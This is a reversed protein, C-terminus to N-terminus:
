TASNIKKVGVLNFLDHIFNIKIRKDINASLQMSPSLNVELLWPKLDRDILIDYGFIEFCKSGNQFHDKTYGSVHKEISLTTKIVVDYIQDWLLDVDVGEAKLQNFFVAFAMMFPLVDDEYQKLVQVDNNKKNISTNTLHSTESYDSGIEPEYKTTATRILGERHIYIKLPYFSTIVVYIRLDFKYGNFLLPDDLYEGIIASMIPIKEKSLDTLPTIEAVQDGGKAEYRVQKKYEQWCKTLASERWNYADFLFIGSGCSTNSPKFIWKKKSMPHDEEVWQDVLGIFEEYQEPFTFCEPHYNIENGGFKKKLERFHQYLEKKDSLLISHPFHNVLQYDHLNDFIAMSKIIRTWLINANFDGVQDMCHMDLLSRVLTIDCVWMRYTMKVGDSSLLNVPRKRQKHHEELYEAEPVDPYKPLQKFKPLEFKIFRDQYNSSFRKEGTIAHELEFLMQALGFLKRQNEEHSIYQKSCVHGLLREPFLSSIGPREIQPTVLNFCANQKLRDEAAKIEEINMNFMKENNSARSTREDRGGARSVNEEVQPGSNTSEAAQTNVVEM